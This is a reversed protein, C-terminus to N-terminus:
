PAVYSKKKYCEWNNQTITPKYKNKLLVCYLQYNVTAGQARYHEMLPGKMDFFTDANNKNHEISLLKKKQMPFKSTEM